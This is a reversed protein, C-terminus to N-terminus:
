FIKKNKVEKDRKVKPPTAPYAPTTLCQCVTDIHAAMRPILPNILRIFYTNETSSVSNVCNGCKSVCKSCRPFRSFVGSHEVFYQSPKLM